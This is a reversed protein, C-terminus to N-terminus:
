VGMSASFAGGRQRAEAVAQKVQETIQPMLGMLEARVTGQVGTSVNLTVNTVGGGLQDNPIINGSSGPSFIEPGREGVLIPKNGSVFGGGAFGEVNGGGGFLSGGISKGISSLGSFVFDTATEALFNVSKQAMRDAITNLTSIAFDQLGSFGDKLSLISGGITDQMSIGVLESASAIKGVSNEMGSAFLRVADAGWKGSDLPGKEAPSDQKLFKQLWDPILAGVKDKVKDWQAEFGEAFKKVLEAGETSLRKFAIIGKDVEIAINAIFTGVEMFVAGIGKMIPTAINVASVLTEGIAKAAQAISEKNALLVPAIDLFANRFGGTITGSIETMADNLKEANRVGEEGLVLGLSQARERAEEFSATGDNFASTMKLGAGGFAADAIALKQTQTTAQGMARFMVDLAQSVNDTATLESLLAEEGGKLGGTLAGIGQRAKGLRKGFTLLAQDVAEAGVGAQDFAFRMKQLEDTAIGARDATKGIADASSLISKTLAGFAGASALGVLASKLGAFSKSLGKVSKKAKKAGKEFKKSDMSLVAKLNGIKTSAM